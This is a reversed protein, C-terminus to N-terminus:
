HRHLVGCAAPDTAEAPLAANLESAGAGAKDYKLNQNYDLGHIVVVAEGRKIAAALSKTVKIGGRSYNLLGRPTTPFRDVALGSKPSTDGKTTLSVAIPGYYPVGEVVNLRKDRNRDQRVTPCEHEATAGHHIHMAHPMKLLLGGARVKVDLKDGTLRVSVQATGRVGSNNLPEIRASTFRSTASRAAAPAPAAAAPAAAAPAAAPAAATTATAASPGMLWGGAGLATVSVAAAVARKRQHRM